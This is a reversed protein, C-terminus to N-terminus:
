NNSSWLNKGQAVTEGQDLQLVEHLVAGFLLAGLSASVPWHVHGGPPSASLLRAISGGVSLILIWEDLCQSVRRFGAHRLQFPVSDSPLSLIYVWDVLTDHILLHICVTLWSRWRLASIVLSFIVSHSVSFPKSFPLIFLPFPLLLLGRWLAWPGSLWGRRPHFPFCKLIQYWCYFRIRSYYIKLLFFWSM